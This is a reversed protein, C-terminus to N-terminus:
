ARDDPQAPERHSRGVARRRRGEMGPDPEFQRQGSFSLSQVQSANLFTAGNRIRVFDGGNPPAGPTSFSEDSAWNVAAALTPIRFRSESTSGKVKQTDLASDLAISM